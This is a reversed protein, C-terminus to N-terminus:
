SRPRHSISSIGGSIPSRRSSGPAGDYRVAGPLAGCVIVSSLREGYSVIADTTKPSLDKILYVGKFINSLEDLLRGIQERVSPLNEKLVVTDALGYHRAVM